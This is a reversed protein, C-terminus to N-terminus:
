ATDKTLLHAAHGAEKKAQTLRELVIRFVTPSFLLGMHGLGPIQIQEEDSAACMRPLIINDSGAFISLSTVSQAHCKTRELRAVIPSDPRLERGIRSTLWYASYTGRHPTGLTICQDVRRAGGLEQLYLRAVMGGLSHCVLHIRGGRVHRRLYDKLGIAARETGEASPYQYSLVSKIGHARLYAHMPLFSARNAMYGHVFVVTQQEAARATRRGPARGLGFPYLLGAAANALVERGVIRATAGPEGSTYKTM